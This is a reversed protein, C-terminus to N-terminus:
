IRGDSNTIRYAAMQSLVDDSNNGFIKVNSNNKFAEIIKLKSHLHEYKRRADMVKKIQGEGSSVIDITQAKLGAVDHM